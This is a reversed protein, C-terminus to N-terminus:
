KLFGKLWKIAESESTFVRIPMKTKNLGIFFNAIVRSLSSEVFLAVASQVKATEEGAFYERAERSMAKEKRLDVLTPYGKGQSIKAMAAISEKADVLSVEANPSVIIRAIGDEGWWIKTVRTSIEKNAM